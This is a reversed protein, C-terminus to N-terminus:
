PAPAAEVAGSANNSPGLAGEEGEEEDDGEGADDGGWMGFPRENAPGSMPTLVDLDTEVNIAGLPLRSDEPNYAQWSAVLSCGRLRKVINRLSSQKLAKYLAKKTAEAAANEEEKDDKLIDKVAREFKDDDMSGMNEMPDAQENPDPVHLMAWNVLRSTSIGCGPRVGVHLFIWSLTAGITEDDVDADVNKMAAYVDSVTLEKNGAADNENVAQEFTVGVMGALNGILKDIFRQRDKEFQKVFESVLAGRFGDDHMDILQPIKYRSLDVEEEPDKPKNLETNLKNSVRVITQVDAEPKRPFVSELIDVYQNSAITGKSGEDVSKQLLTNRIRYLENRIITYVGEDVRGQLMDLFLSLRYDLTFRKCSEVINYTWEMRIDQNDYREEFYFAVYDPFSKKAPNEDQGYDYDDNSSGMNAILAKKRVAMMDEIMLAVDRPNLNRDPVKRTHRLCKLINPEIGLPQIFKDGGRRARLESVLKDATDKTSKGQILREWKPVGGQIFEGLQEWSPRPTVTIRLETLNTKVGNLEDDLKTELEKLINLDEELLGKEDALTKATGKQEIINRKM